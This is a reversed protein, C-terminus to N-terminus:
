LHCITASARSLPSYLRDYWTGAGKGDGLWEGDGDGEGDAFGVRAGSYLPAAADAGIGKQSVNTLM